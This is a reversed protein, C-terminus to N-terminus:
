LVIFYQTPVRAGLTIQWACVYMMGDHWAMMKTFDKRAPRPKKLDLLALAGALLARKQGVHECKYV